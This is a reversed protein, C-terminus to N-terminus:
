NFSYRVSTSIRRRYRMAGGIGGFGFILMMWTMPEPVARVFVTYYVDTTGINTFSLSFRDQISQELVPGDIDMRQAYYDNVAVRYVLENEIVENPFYYDSFDDLTITEGTEVYTWLISTNIDVSNLLLSSGPFAFIFEYTGTPLYDGTGPVSFPTYSGGGTSGAEIVGSDIVTVNALAPSAALAIPAALAYAIKM